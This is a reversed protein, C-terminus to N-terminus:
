AQCNDEMCSDFVHSALALAGGTEGHEQYIEMADDHCDEFCPDLNGQAALPLVVVVLTVVVATFRARLSSVVDPM